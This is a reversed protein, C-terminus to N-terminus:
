HPRSRSVLRWKAGELYRELDDVIARFRYEGELRIAEDERRRRHLPWVERRYRGELEQQRTKALVAIQLSRIEGFSINPTGVGNACAAIQERGPRTKFFFWAYFPNLGELRILDVFCGVNAPGRGLYVALRNQGLAGTGSRPLLLDGCCVRSRLPDHRGQPQVCLLDGEDLGTEVIDGQRIVPVGADVHGPRSGTVIPGYTLHRIYDGLSVLQLRGALGWLAKHGQWYRPDWRRTSLERQSLSVLKAGDQKRVPAKLLQLADQLYLDLDQNQARPAILRAKSRSQGERRRLVILATHANLGKRRFVADPLAVVARVEARQLLWDRAVQLRANAFFGEPLILALWGLPRVLQLAREVFLLEIPFSDLRKIAMIDMLNFRQGLSSEKEHGLLPLVSRIKGFPPNALVCDFRDDVVQPFAGLLGDGTYFQDAACEGREALRADIEVGTIRYARDVVALLAGEGAAPDIVRSGADLDKGALARVADWVFQAVAPPTFHQALGAANGASSM